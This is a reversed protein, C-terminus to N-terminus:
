VRLGVLYMGLKDATSILSESTSGSVIVCDNELTVSDVSAVTFFIVNTTETADECTKIPIQNDYTENPIDATIATSPYIHNQNVLTILRSVEGLALQVNNKDDDFTPTNPDFILYIKEATVIRELAPEQISIHSINRPDTRFPVALAEGSPSSIIAEFSNDQINEYFYYGNIEFADDRQQLPNNINNDNNNDDGMNYVGIGAISGIMIFAIFIGFLRDYRM